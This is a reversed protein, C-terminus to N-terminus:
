GAGEEGLHSGERTQGGEPIWGATRFNSIYSDRRINIEKDGGGM